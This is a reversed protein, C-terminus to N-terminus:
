KMGFLHLNAHSEVTCTPHSTVTCRGLKSHPDTHACWTCIIVTAVCWTRLKMTHCLVCHACLVWTAFPTCHTKLSQATYGDDEGYLSM